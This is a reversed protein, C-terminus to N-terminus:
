LSVRRLESVCACVSMYLSATQSLRVLVGAPRLESPVPAAQSAASRRYEKVAPGPELEFRHLLRESRRFLREREPCFDHCTGVLPGRGPDGAQGARRETDASRDLEQLRAQQGDNKQHPGRGATM